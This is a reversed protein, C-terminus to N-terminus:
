LPLHYPFLALAAFAASDVLGAGVKGRDVRGLGMEVFLVSNNM